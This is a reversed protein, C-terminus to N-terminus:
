ALTALADPLQALRDIVVNADTLAERPYPGATVAIVPLGDAQACAIDRPTDGIVVTRERPHDGARSRAIPPLAARPDIEPLMSLAVSPPSHPHVVAGVGARTAYFAAHLAMEKTPRDGSLCAGGAEFRSLRAPDLDGLRSGKPSILAVGIGLAVIGAYGAVGLKEGILLFTIIATM